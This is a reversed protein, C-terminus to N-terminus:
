LVMQLKVLFAPAVIMKAIGLSLLFLTRKPDLVVLQTYGPLNFLDSTDLTCTM